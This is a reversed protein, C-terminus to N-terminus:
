RWALLNHGAYKTDYFRVNNRYEEFVGGAVKNINRLKKASSPASKVLELYSVALSYNSFRAGGAWVTPRSLDGFAERPFYPHQPVWIIGLPFVTYGDPLEKFSVVLFDFDNNTLKAPLMAIFVERIDQPISYNIRLFPMVGALNIIRNPIYQLYKM